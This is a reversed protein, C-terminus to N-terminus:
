GTTELHFDDADGDDNQVEKTKCDCAPNGHVPAYHAWPAGQYRLYQVIGTGRCRACNRDTM